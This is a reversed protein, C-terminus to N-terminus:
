LASKIKLILFTRSAKGNNCLVVSSCWLLKIVTSNLRRFYHGSISYEAYENPSDFSVHINM